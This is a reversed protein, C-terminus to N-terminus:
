QRGSCRGRQVRGGHRHQRFQLHQWWRRLLHVGIHWLRISEPVLLCWLGSRQQGGFGSQRLLWVPQGGFRVFPHYRCQIRLGHEGGWWLRRSRDCQQVRRGFSLGYAYGHLWLQRQRHRRQGREHVDFRAGIHTPHRGGSDGRRDQGLRKHRLHVGPRYENLVGKGGGWNVTGTITASTAALAGAETVRFPASALTTGGAWIRVDDGGTVLSSMGVFGSTDSFSTEWITWGGIAGTTATVSGTFFGNDTWIGYGSAGSIGTLNGIRLRETITTWPATTHTGISLYPSNTADATLRLSGAGSPGYNLVTAGATFTYNTGAGPSYKVATLRWFTTQDSLAAVGGWFDGVLPEKVRIYDNTAWLAGAAAHTMGDPDEIDISFNTPANVTTFAAITKGAAKVVWLSGNTALVQGYQIATAGLSGRATINNFEANGGNDVRWGATGSAFNSSEILANAGDLHLHASGTDGISVLGTFTGSTANLTGTFTASTATISGATDIYFNKAHISADSGDSYITLDGANATYGSHDETGTFISTANVSWNGLTASTAKLAGAVSVSFPADAFATAGAWFGGAAQM